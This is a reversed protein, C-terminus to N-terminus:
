TSAFSSLAGPMGGILAKIIIICPTLILVGPMAGILAEIAIIYPTFILVIGNGPLGGIVILPVSKVRYVAGSHSWGTFFICAMIPPFRPCACAGGRSLSVNHLTAPLKCLKTSHFMTSAQRYSAGSHQNFCQPSNGTVQMVNSISVNHLTAPLKCWKASHFMTIILPTIQMVKSLLPVICFRYTNDSM